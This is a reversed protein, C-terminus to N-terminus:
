CIMIVALALMRLKPVLQQLPLSVILLLVGCPVMVVIVMLLAETDQHDENSSGSSGRGGLRRFVSERPWPSSRSLDRIGPIDDEDESESWWRDSWHPEFSDDSDTNWDECELIEIEVRYKLMPLDHYIIEEPRLFLEAGANPDRHEPVNPIM